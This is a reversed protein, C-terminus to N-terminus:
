STPERRNQRGGSNKKFVYGLRRLARYLGSESVRRKREVRRNYLVTLEARTGDPLEALVSELVSEEVKRPMGGGHPRPEVDGTMRRLRLWQM